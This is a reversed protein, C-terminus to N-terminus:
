LKAQKMHNHFKTEQMSPLVYASPTPSYFASCLIKAKPPHLSLTSSSIAIHNAEHDANLVLYQTLSLIWFFSTPPVHLLLPFFILPTYLTKTPFNSPFLGNARGLCLHFITNFNVTYFYTLPHSQISRASCPSPHHATTYM